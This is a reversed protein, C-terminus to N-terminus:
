SANALTASPRVSLDVVTDPSAVLAAPGSALDTHRTVGHAPLSERPLPPSKRFRLERESLTRPGLIVLGAFAVAVVLTRTRFRKRRSRASRPEAGDSLQAFGRREWLFRRMTDTIAGPEEDSSM